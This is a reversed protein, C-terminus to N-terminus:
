YRKSALSHEALMASCINKAATCKGKMFFKMRADIKKRKKSIAKATQDERDHQLKEFIVYNPYLSPAYGLWDISQPM